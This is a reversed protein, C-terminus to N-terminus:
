KKQTYLSALLDTKTIVGEIKGKNSVLVMPFYRFLDTIADISTEMSVIPPPSDMIDEVTKGKNEILADLITAESIMGIAKNDHIVPLQSFGNKKMKTIADKILSTPNISIIKGSIINSAIVENKKSYDRLALFIKQANTYTPDLRGAEIKAILSQSVGSLKALDSQTIDLKKRIDKIESIEIVM